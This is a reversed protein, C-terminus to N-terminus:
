YDLAGAPLGDPQGKEMMAAVLARRIFEQTANGDFVLGVDRAWDRVSSLAGSRLAGFLDDFVAEDAGDTLELDPSADLWGDRCGDMIGRYLARAIRLQPRIVELIQQTTAVSRGLSIEMDLM